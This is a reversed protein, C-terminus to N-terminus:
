VGGLQKKLLDTASGGNLEFLLNQIIENKCPMECISNSDMGARAGCLNNPHAGPFDGGCAYM